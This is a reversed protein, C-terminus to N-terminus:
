YLAQFKSLKPGIGLPHILSIMGTFLGGKGISSMQINTSGTVQFQFGIKM